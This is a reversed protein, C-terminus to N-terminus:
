PVQVSIFYTKGISKMDYDVFEGLLAFNQKIQKCSCILHRDYYRQKHWMEWLIAREAVISEFQLLVLIYYGIGHVPQAFLFKDHKNDIDNWNSPITIM